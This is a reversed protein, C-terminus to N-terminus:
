PGVWFYVFDQVAIRTGTLKPGVLLNNLRLSMSAADLRIPALSVPLRLDVRWVFDGDPVISLAEV